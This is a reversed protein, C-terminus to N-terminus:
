EKTSNHELTYLPEGYSENISRVWNLLGPRKDLFAKCGDALKITKAKLVTDILGLAVGRHLVIVKNIGGNIGIHEEISFDKYTSIINIM